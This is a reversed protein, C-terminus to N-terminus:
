IAYPLIHGAPVAALKRNRKVRDLVSQAVAFAAKPQAARLANIRMREIKAPDLLLENIRDTLTFVSNIKIAAGSELLFDSNRSEQGPIPNVIAMPVGRALCESSTLGGPKSVVLDAAGMLEDMHETFGLIKVRHRLPLAFQE